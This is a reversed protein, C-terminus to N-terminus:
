IKNELLIFIIKLLIEFIEVISLFSLGLFLGLTGGLNSVLDFPQIKIDEKLITERLKDYFILVRSVRKAIEGYSPSDSLRRKIVSNNMLYKSYKITPFQSYSSSYSYENIDCEYPCDCQELLEPTQYYKFINDLACQRDEAIKTENLICLRMEKFYYFPQLISQCGCKEGIYKQLCVFACETYRYTRNPSFYRRYFESDYSGISDLDNLCESYPKPQKSISYKTLIINTSTGPAVKIGENTTSDVTQNNIFIVFGNEKTLPFDNDEASGIFLELDLGYSIGSQYSYKQQIETGNMTRGSNFRYCNGYNIDYFYEFDQELDCKIQNFQCNIMFEKISYGLNTRDFGYNKIVMNSWAKAALMQNYFPFTTKFMFNSVNNSYPTAFLNLNCISVIPFIMKDREKISIKTIVNYEFYDIISLSLSYGCVGTSILFCIMWMFKISNNDNRLINPIGHISSGELSVKISNLINKQKIKEM